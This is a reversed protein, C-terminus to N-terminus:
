YNYKNMAQKLRINKMQQSFTQSINMLEKQSSSKLNQNYSIKREWKDKETPTGAQSLKELANTEAILADSISTLIPNSMELQATLITIKDRALQATFPDKMRDAHELESLAKHIEISLFLTFFNRFGFGGTGSKIVNNKFSSFDDDNKFCIRQIIEFFPAEDLPNDQMVNSTFIQYIIDKGQIDVLIHNKIIRIYTEESLLDKLLSYLHNYRSRKIIEKLQSKTNNSLETFMKKNLIYDIDQDKIDIKVIGSTDVLSEIVLQNILVKALDFSIDNGSNLDVFNKIYLRGYYSRPIVLFSFGQGTKDRMMNVKEVFSILDSVRLAIHQIGQGLEEVYDHVHGSESLSNNITLFIQSQDKLSDADNQLNSENGVIISEMVAEGASIVGANFNVKPTFELIDSLIDLCKKKNKIDSMNCVWHDFYLEQANSPFQASIKIMGPLISFESKTENSRECFRFSIGCDVSKDSKYFAYTEIYKYNDYVQIKPTKILAPHKKKYKKLITKVGGENKVRFTMVGFGQKDNHVKFFDIAHSGMFHYFEKIKDSKTKMKPATVIFQSTTNENNTCSLAFSNSSIGNHSGIIRYGFGIILQKVIDQNYSVFDKSKFNPFKNFGNNRIEIEQYYQLTELKKVYIQIHDFILIQSSNTLKEMHICFQLIFLYNYTYYIIYKDIKKNFPFMFIVSNSLSKM